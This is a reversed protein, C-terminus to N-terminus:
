KGVQIISIEPSVSDIFQKISSSKSGHHAIKLVDSDLDLNQEVLSREIRKDIDATLLFSIDKYTLRTVISSQNNSFYFNNKIPSLINIVVGDGFVIKDGGYVEIVESKEKEIMEWLYKTFDNEEQHKPVIIKNVNFYRLVDIVGGSHDFDFHTIILVDLNRDYFPLFSTAQRVSGSGLKGSDVMVTRQNPTKIFISDGQGVNLFHVGLRDDNVNNIFYDILFGSVIICCLLLFVFIYYYKQLIFNLM